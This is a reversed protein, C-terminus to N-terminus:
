IRPLRSKIKQQNPWPINVDRPAGHDLGWIRDTSKQVRKKPGQSFDLFQHSGLYGFFRNKISKPGTKPGWFRDFISGFRTRSVSDGFFRNKFLNQDIQPDMQIGFIMTEIHIKCHKTSKLREAISTFDLASLHTFFVLFDSWFNTLFRDFISDFFSLSFSGRGPLNGSSKPAMQSEGFRGWISLFSRPVNVWLTGSM